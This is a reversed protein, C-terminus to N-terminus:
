FRLLYINRQQAYIEKVPLYLQLPWAELSSSCCKKNRKLAIRSVIHVYLAM